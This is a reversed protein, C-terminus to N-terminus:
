RIVAQSVMKGDKAYVIEPNNPDPYREGMFFFVYQYTGPPLTLTLSYSGKSIERMEYMFPDWNNFSGGVTVTSGPAANFSFRLTGTTNDVTSPVKTQAPLTVRSNKIGGSGTIVQPNLPDPTWLGDIIMRYDLEKIGDPIAQVHFLIGSDRNPDINKKKGEAAIEAQDRPILLKQLWYVRSFGEYAFSIGVRRFTSPATFVVSDGYIVPSVPGPLELLMDIFDASALDAAEITGICLILLVATIIRKM